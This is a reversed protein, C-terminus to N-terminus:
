KPRKVSMFHSSSHKRKMYHICGFIRCFAPFETRVSNFLKCYTLAHVKEQRTRLRLSVHPLASLDGKTAYMSYTLLIDFTHFIFAPLLSTAEPRPKCGVYYFVTINKRQAAIPKCLKAHSLPHNTISRPDQWSQGSLESQNHIVNRPFYKNLPTPTRWWWM